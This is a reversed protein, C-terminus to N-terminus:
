AAKIGEGDTSADAARNYGNRGSVLLRNTLIAAHEAAEMIGDVHTRLPHGPPLQALLLHGHGKVATLMDDLDYATNHMQRSLEMMTSEEEHENM